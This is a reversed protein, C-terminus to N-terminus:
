LADRKQRKESRRFYRRSGSSERSRFAVINQVDCIFDFGTRVKTIPTPLKAIPVLSEYM